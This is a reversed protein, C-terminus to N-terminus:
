DVEIFRRKKDSKWEDSFRLTGMHM